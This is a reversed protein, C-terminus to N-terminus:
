ILPRFPPLILLKTLEIMAETLIKLEASNKNTEKSRKSLLQLQEELMKKIEENSM